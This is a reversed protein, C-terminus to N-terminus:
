SRRYRPLEAGDLTRYSGFQEGTLCAHVPAILVRDGPRLDALQARAAEGTAALVGHEQSLGAVTWGPLLDGFGGDTLGLLRGYGDDLREKSLHVAGAHVVAEGRGPYVGIVPCAVACALDAVTCAGADLQMLDFFVFNGPRAEDLGSWDPVAAFGPTDGASLQLGPRQLHSRAAQLRERTAHFTAARHATRYAHGAHALLGVLELTPAAEVRAALDALPAHDDWPVGTRADGVDVELWVQLPGPLAAVTAPHDVIVGLRIRRALDALADAEAPNAPVALTLDDWGHDAFYAAQGLSSVTARTVGATRFWEGIAACQHTKFHPRLAVGSMRARQVFRAIKAECRARDVLLTARTIGLDALRQSTARM